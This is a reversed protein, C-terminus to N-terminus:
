MGNPSMMEHVIHLDLCKSCIDEDTELPPNHESRKTKM